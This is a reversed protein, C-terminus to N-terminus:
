KLYESPSRTRKGAGWRILFIKKYSKKQTKQTVQISSEIFFFFFHTISFAILLGPFFALQFAGQAQRNHSVKITLNQSWIISKNQKYHSTSENLM